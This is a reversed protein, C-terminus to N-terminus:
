EAIFALLDVRSEGTLSTLALPCSLVYMLELLFAKHRVTNYLLSTKNEVETNGGRQTKIESQTIGYVHRQWM